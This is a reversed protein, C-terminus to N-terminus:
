GSSGTMAMSRRAAEMMAAYQPQGACRQVTERMAQNAENFHGLEILCKGVRYMPGPATEDMLAAALFLSLAAKAEGRRHASLALAMAYDPHHPCACLLPAFDDIAQAYDGREFANYGSRYASDCQMADWEGPRPMGMAVRQTEADRLMALTVEIKQAVADTSPLTGAAIEGTKM